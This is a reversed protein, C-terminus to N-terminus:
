LIYESYMDCLWWYVDGMEARVCILMDVHEGISNLRFICIVM